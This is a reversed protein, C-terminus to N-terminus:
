GANVGGFIAENPTREKAQDLPQNLPMNLSASVQYGNNPDAYLFKLASSSFYVADTAREDLVNGFTVVASPDLKDSDSVVLNGSDGDVVVYNGNYTFVHAGSQNGVNFVSASDSEVDAYITNDDAVRWFHDNTGHIRIKNTITSM